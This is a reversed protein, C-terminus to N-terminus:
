IVNFFMKPIGPGTLNFDLLVRKYNTKERTDWASPSQSEVPFSFSMLLPEDIAPNSSDLGKRGNQM